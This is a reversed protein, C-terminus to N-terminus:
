FIKKKSYNVVQEKLTTAVTNWKLSPESIIVPWDSFDIDDFYVLSKLVISENNQPYKEKYYSIMKDLSISKLLFYIDIFDKVRQGSGLIANLKMGIIDPISLMSVGESTLPKRILTYRHAIIDIKINDISGKLSNTASFFLNYNFDNQLNELLQTVDFSFDSFLDLDISRRHGLELALATGGALYFDQLYPKKQLQNLLELTSREVTKTHLM